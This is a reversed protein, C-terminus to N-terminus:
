YYEYGEDDDAPASNGLGAPRYSPPSQSSDAQLSPLSNWFSPRPSASVRMQEKEGCTSACLVISLVAAAVGGWLFSENTMPDADTFGVWLLWIVAVVLAIVVGLHLNDGIM